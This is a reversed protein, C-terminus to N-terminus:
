KLAGCSMASWGTASCWGLPSPASRTREIMARAWTALERDDLGRWVIAMLLAAVQYEPVAGTTAGSIVARLEDDDLAGGDRKKAILAPVALPVAHTRSM